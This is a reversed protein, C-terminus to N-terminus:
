RILCLRKCYSQEQNIKHIIAFIGTYNQGETPLVKLNRTHKKKLSMEPLTVAEVIACAHTSGQPGGQETLWLLPDRYVQWTYLLLAM